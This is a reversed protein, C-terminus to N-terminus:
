NKKLKDRADKLPKCTEKIEFSYVNGYNDYEIHTCEFFLERLKVRARQIRAKVAPLSLNLLRAIEKQPINEIDSMSLPLRYKEKLLSILPLTFDCACLEEPIFEPEPFSTNAPHLGEKSRYKKRYFESITNNTITFIWSKVNRIKEERSHALSVKLFVEQAIDEADSAISIRSRILDRIGNEFTLIAKHLYCCESAEM